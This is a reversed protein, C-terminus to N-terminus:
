NGKYFGEVIFYAAIAVYAVLSFVIVYIQVAKRFDLEKVIYCFLVVFLLALMLFGLMKM